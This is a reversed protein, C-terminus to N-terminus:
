KEFVKKLYRNAFPLIIKMMFKPSYSKKLTDRWLDDINAFNGKEAIKWPNLTELDNEGDWDIPSFFKQELYGKNKAGEVLNKDFTADCLIWKGNLYCQGIPHHDIVPPFLKLVWKPLFANMCEKKLHIVHYRAPINIARLLAIQLNAKGVCFGHAEKLTNSAIGFFPDMNFEIEDRIFYFIAKAKEKDTSASDTLEHAKQIIIPNDSDCMKTPKLYDDLNVNDNEIQM